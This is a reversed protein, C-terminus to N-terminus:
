NYLTYDKRCGQVNCRHSLECVRQKIYKMTKNTSISPFISVFLLLSFAMAQINVSIHSRLSILIVNTVLQSFCLSGGNFYDILIFSILKQRYKFSRDSWLLFYTMTKINSVYAKYRAFDLMDWAHLTRHYTSIFYISYYNPLHIGM